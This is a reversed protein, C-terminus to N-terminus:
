RSLRGLRRLRRRAGTGGDPSSFSVIAEIIASRSRKKRDALDAIQKLLEPPFYVNMRDRMTECSWAMMRTSRSRAPLAVCRGVRSVVRGGGTQENRGARSRGNGSAM